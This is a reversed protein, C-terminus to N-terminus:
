LQSHVEFDLAGKEHLRGRFEHKLREESMRFARPFWRNLEEEDGGDMMTTLAKATDFCLVMGSGQFSAAIWLGEKHPMPGVLPFGQSSYGMIGTWQKRIRGDPHDEGWQTGFYQAASDRVYQGIQPDMTTDNTTGWEYLGEDSAKTSCGGIVLDGAFRSDAPRFIMYEYGNGYIFSYTTKLGGKPMASGPRQAAVTGRLPVIIGRVPPCLYATYGNTALIVKGARITGRPTEVIWDKSTADSPHIATVLTETQLNLGKKLALDLMEMVFSYASISGADYSVSGLAGDVLFKEKTELADYFQYQAAPDDDGLVRRIESVAKQAQIWHGKDYIIDVTKGEWSDCRIDHERAFAHVAKICNYEFRAIKAAEEEGQDKVNDLFARYSAAKTHGGNRGTAGSCATRAELMLVSSQDYRAVLNYAISAGTIGSGVIVTSVLEPLETTTRHNALPHPPDQWYSVTPSLCPPAPTIAAREDM